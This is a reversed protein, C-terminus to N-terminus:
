FHQLDDFVGGDFSLHFEAHNKAFVPLTDTARAVPNDRFNQATKDSETQIGFDGRYGKRRGASNGAFSQFAGDLSKRLFVNSSICFKRSFDVMDGRYFACAFPESAAGCARNIREINQRFRSQQLADRRLAFFNDARVSLRKNERRDCPFMRASYGCSREIFVGRHRIEM